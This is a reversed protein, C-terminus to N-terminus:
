KILNYFYNVEGLKKTLKFLRMVKSYDFNENNTTFFIVKHRIVESYFTKLDSDDLIEIGFFNFLRISKKNYDLFNELIFGYIKNQSISDYNVEM